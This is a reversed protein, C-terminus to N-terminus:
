AAGSATASAPPAACASSTRASRSSDPCTPRRWRGPWRRSCATARPLRRRLARLQREDLWHFLGRGDKVATDLLAGQAGAERALAPCTSRTPRTPGTSTPSRRRRHARRGAPLAARVTRLTDRARDAATDRLGLKVFAAGRGAVALAARAVAAAEFPGDGLAVSVPLHLRRRPASGGVVGPAAAGLAGTTPDKVDVIDAGSAAAEIAEAAEVVSILLRM